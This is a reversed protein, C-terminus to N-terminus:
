GWSSYPPKDFNIMGTSQLELLAKRIIFGPYSDCNNQLFLSIACANFRAPMNSLSEYYFENNLILKCYHELQERKTKFEPANM